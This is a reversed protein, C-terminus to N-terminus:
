SKRLLTHLHPFIEYLKFLFIHHTPFKRNVGEMWTTKHSLQKQESSSFDDLICYSKYCSAAFFYIAKCVRIFYM